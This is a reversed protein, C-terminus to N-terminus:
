KQKRSALIKAAQKLTKQQDRVSDKYITQLAEAKIPGRKNLHKKQEPTLALEM